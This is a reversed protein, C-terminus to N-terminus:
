ARHISLRLSALLPLQVVRQDLQRTLVAGIQRRLLDALGPHLQCQLFAVHYPLLRNDAEGIGEEARLRSHLQQEVELEVERAADDVLRARVLFLERRV